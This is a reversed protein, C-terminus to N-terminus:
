KKIFIVDYKGQEIIKPINMQRKHNYSKVIMDEIMQVNRVRKSM